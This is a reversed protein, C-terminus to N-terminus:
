LGIECRAPYRVRVIRRRCKSGGVEGLGPERDVPPQEKHDNDLLDVFKPYGEKVPLFASRMNQEEVVINLLVKPDHSFYRELVIM